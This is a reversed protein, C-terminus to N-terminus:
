FSNKLNSRNKNSLRFNRPTNKNHARVTNVYRIMEEYLRNLKKEKQQNSKIMMIEIFEEKFLGIAINENIRIKEGKGTEKEEINKQADRMMDHVINYTLLQAHFDQYVYIPKTGTM